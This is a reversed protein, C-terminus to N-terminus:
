RGLAVRSGADVPKQCVCEHAALSAIRSGLALGNPGHGVLVSRAKPHSQHLRPTANPHSQIPKYTAIYVM